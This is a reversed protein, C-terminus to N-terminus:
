QFEALPSLNGAALTFCSSASAKSEWRTLKRSEAKPPTLHQFGKKNSNVGNTQRKQCSKEEEGGKGKKKRKPIKDILWSQDWQQQVFVSVSLQSGMQIGTLSFYTIGLVKRDGRIWMLRKEHTPIYWFRNKRVAFSASLDLFGFFMKIHSNEAFLNRHM